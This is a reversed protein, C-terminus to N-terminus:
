ISIEGIIKFSLWLINSQVVKDRFKEEKKTTTTTSKKFCKELPRYITDNIPIIYHIPMKKNVTTQGGHLRRVQTLLALPTSASTVLSYLSAGDQNSETYVKARFPSQATSKGRLRATSFQVSCKTSQILVFLM